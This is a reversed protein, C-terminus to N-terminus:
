AFSFDKPLSEAERLVEEKNKFYQRFWDIHERKQKVTFYPNKSLGIIVLEMFDRIPGTKPFDAILDDLLVHEHFSVAQEEELGPNLYSSYKHWTWYM